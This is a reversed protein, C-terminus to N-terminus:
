HGKERGTRRMVHAETGATISKGQWVTQLYMMLGDSREIKRWMWPLTLCVLGKHGRDIDEKAVVERM